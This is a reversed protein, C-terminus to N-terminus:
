FVAESLVIHKYIVWKVHELIVPLCIKKLEIAVLYIRFYFLSILARFNSLM